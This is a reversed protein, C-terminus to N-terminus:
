ASFNHSGWRVWRKRVRGAGFREDRCGVKIDEVAIIEVSCHCRAVFDISVGFSGSWRLDGVM